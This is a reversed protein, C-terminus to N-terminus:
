RCRTSCERLLKDAERREEKEEYGRYGPVRATLEEM